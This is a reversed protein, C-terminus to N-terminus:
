KNNNTKKKKKNQKTNIYIFFIHQKYYKKDKTIIETWNKETQHKLALLGDAIWTYSLPWM